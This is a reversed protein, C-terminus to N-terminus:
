NNFASSCSIKIERTARSQEQWVNFSNKFSNKPIKSLIAEAEKELLANAEKQSVNEPIKEDKVEIIEVDSFRSIRKKYEDAADKFFNEKLKGVTILTIKM